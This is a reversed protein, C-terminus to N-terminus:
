FVTVATNLYRPSMSRLDASLREESVVEETVKISFAYYCPIYNPHIMNLISKGPVFVSVGSM